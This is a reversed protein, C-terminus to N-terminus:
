NESEDDELLESLVRIAGEIRLLTQQLVLQDNQLNVLVEKGKTLELKLEELRDEIQEKM